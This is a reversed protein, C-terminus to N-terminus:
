KQSKINHIGQTPTYPTSFAVCLNYKIGRYPTETVVITIGSSTYQHPNDRYLINKCYSRFDKQVEFCIIM